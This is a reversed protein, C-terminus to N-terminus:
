YGVIKYTLNCSNYKLFELKGSLLKATMVLIDEISSIESQNVVGYLQKNNKSELVVTKLGNVIGILPYFPSVSFNSKISNNWNEGECFFWTPYIKIYNYIQTPVNEALFRIFSKDGIKDKGNITEIVRPEGSSILEPHYKHRVAKNTKSNWVFENFELTKTFIEHSPFALPGLYLEFCRVRGEFLLKTFFDETWKYNNPITINDSIGKIFDGTGRMVNCHGCSASTIICVVPLNHKDM